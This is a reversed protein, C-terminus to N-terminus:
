VGECSSIIHNFVESQPPTVNQVGINGQENDTVRRSTGSLKIKITNRPQMSIIPIVGGEDCVISLMTQWTRVEILNERTVHNKWFSQGTNLKLERIIRKLDQLTACTSDLM